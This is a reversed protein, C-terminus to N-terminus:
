RVKIFKKSAVEDNLQIQVLYIGTPVNSIDVSVTNVGVVLDVNKRALVKGDVGVVQITTKNSQQLSIGLILNNGTVPNPRIQIANVASVKITKVVSYGFKGDVDVRRIRYYHIGAALSQDTYNYSNVGTNNKGNVRGIEKFNAGTSSHEVAYYTVNFEDATKWNLLGNGNVGEATFDLWTAPLAGAPVKVIMTFVVGDLLTIGNFNIIKGAASSANYLTQTGTAFDGDGDLDVMLKFNGLINGGTYTFGTTDFSLNVSGVNGTNDAKWERTIRKGGVMVLPANLATLTQAQEALSAADNGIMLFRKDLLNINTSLVLNGKLNQGAGSGSGTNASNSRVQRLGSTSDTGIGFVDNQFTANAAWFITTSDSARYSVPSAPTGLSLGYKVALYSEITSQRLPTINSDLYYIVEGIRGFYDGLTFTASTVTFTGTTNSQAVLVGNKRIDQKFGSGTNAIDDKSFSYLAPVNAETVNTAQLPNGGVRWTIKGKTDGGTPPQLSVGVNNTSGFSGARDEIITETQSINNQRGVIFMHGRSHGASGTFSGGGQINLERNTEFSAVPNFNINDTANNKLIPRESLTNQLLQLGGAGNAWSNFNFNDTGEINGAKVWLASGYVGGPALLRTLSIEDLTFDNGNNDNSTANKNKIDM